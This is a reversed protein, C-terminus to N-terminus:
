AETGGCGSLPRRRGQIRTERGRVESSSSKQKRICLFVGCPSTRGLLTSKLLPTGFSVSARRAGM